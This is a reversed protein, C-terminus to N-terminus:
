FDDMTSPREPLQARLERRLTEVVWYRAHLRSHKKRLRKTPAGRGEREAIEEAQEELEGVMDCSRKELAVLESEMTRLDPALNGRKRLAVPNM